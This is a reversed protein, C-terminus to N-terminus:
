CPKEAPRGILFCGVLQLCVRSQLSGPYIIGIIVVMGCICFALELAAPRNQTPLRKKRKMRLGHTWSGGLLAWASVANFLILPLPIIFTIIRIFKSNVYSPM